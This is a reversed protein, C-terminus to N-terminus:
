NLSSLRVDTIPISYESISPQYIFNLNVKYGEYKFEFEPHLSKTQGLEITQKQNTVCCILKNQSDRLKFDKSFDINIPTEGINEFELNLRMLDKSEMYTPYLKIKFNDTSISDKTSTVKPSNSLIFVTKLDDNWEVSAGLSESVFRLPLLTRGEVIKAPVDLMIEKGNVKATKSDIQLEIFIDQGCSVEVTKSENNWDVSAGLSEFIARVPVLMKGDVIIPPVDLNLNAGDLVISNEKVYSKDIFGFNNNLNKVTLQGNAYTCIATMNIIIVTLIIYAIKNMIFKGGKLQKVHKINGTKM